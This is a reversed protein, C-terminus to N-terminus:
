GGDRAKLIQDGNPDIRNANMQQQAEEGGLKMSPAVTPANKKKARIHSGVPAPPEDEGAATVQNGAAADPKGATGACGAVLLLTALLCGARPNKPM